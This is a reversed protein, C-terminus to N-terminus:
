KQNNRINELVTKIDQGGLVDYSRGAEKLCLNHTMFNILETWTKYLHRLRYPIKKKDGNAELFNNLLQVRLKHEETNKTPVGIFLDINKKYLTEWAEITHGFLAQKTSEPM